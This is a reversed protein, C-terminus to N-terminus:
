GQNWSFTLDSIVQCQCAQRIGREYEEQTLKDTRTSKVSGSDIKVRCTACIGMGTCSASIHVGAARAASLLNTGRDVVIELNDPSFHIKCKDVSM